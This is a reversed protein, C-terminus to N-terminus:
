KQQKKKKLHVFWLTLSAVIAKKAGPLCRWSHAGFPFHSTSGNHLIEEYFIFLMLPFCFSVYLGSFIGLHLRLSWVVSNVIAEGLLVQHTIHGCSEIPPTWYSWHKFNYKMSMVWEKGSSNPSKILCSTDHFLPKVQITFIFSISKWNVCIFCLYCLSTFSLAM